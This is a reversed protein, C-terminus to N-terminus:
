VIRNETETEVANAPSTLTVTPPGGLVLFQISLETNESVAVSLISVIVDETGAAVVPSGDSASLNDGTAQSTPFDRTAGAVTTSNELVQRIIDGDTNRLRVLATRSSTDGNLLSGGLLILINGAGPTFLYSHSGSTGADNVITARHHWTAWTDPDFTM